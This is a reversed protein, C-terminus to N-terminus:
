PRSGVASLTKSSLWCGAVRHPVQRGAMGHLLLRSVVPLGVPYSSGAIGNRPNDWLRLLLTLLGDRRRGNWCSRSRGFTTRWGPRRLRGPRTSPEWLLRGRMQYLRKARNYVGRHLSGAAVTGGAGPGVRGKRM